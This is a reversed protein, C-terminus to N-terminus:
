ALRRNTPSRLPQSVFRAMASPRALPAHTLFPIGWVFHATIQISDNLPQQPPKFPNLMHHPLPAAYRTALQAVRPPETRRIRPPVRRLVLLRYEASSTNRRTVGHLRRSLRRPSRSRPRPAVSRSSSSWLHWARSQKPGSLRRFVRLTKLPSASPRASLGCFCPKPVFGSNRLASGPPVWSFSVLLAPSRGSSMYTYTSRDCPRALRGNRTPSCPQGFCLRVSSPLGACLLGCYVWM